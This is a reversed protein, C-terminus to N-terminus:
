DRKKSLARKTLRLNGMVRLAITLQKSNIIQCQAKKTGNKMFCSLKLCKRVLYLFIYHLLYFNILFIKPAEQQNGIGLYQSFSILNELLIVSKNKNM